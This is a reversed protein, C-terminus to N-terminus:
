WSRLSNIQFENIYFYVVIYLELQPPIQLFIFHNEDRLDFKYKRWFYYM